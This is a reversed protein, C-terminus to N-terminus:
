QGHIILSVDDPRGALALGGQKEGVAIGEGQGRRGLRAACQSRIFWM